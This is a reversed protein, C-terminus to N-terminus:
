LSTFLSSWESAIHEHPLFDQPLDQFLHLRHFDPTDYMGPPAPYLAEYTSGVGHIAFANFKHPGPPIYTLPIFAQGTWTNNSHIESSFTLPLKDKWLSHCGNLMLVLYCGHPSLEVELYRDKEGLIFAEVVEYDWLQEQAGGVKFGPPAPDNFFPAKVTLQLSDPSEAGVSLRIQVADHSVPTGDWCHKIKFSIDNMIRSAYHNYKVTFILPWIM